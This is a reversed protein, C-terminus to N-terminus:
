PRGRLEVTKIDILSLPHGHPLLTAFPARSQILLVLSRVDMILNRLAAFLDSGYHPRALVQDFHKVALRVPPPSAFAAALTVLDEPEPPVM